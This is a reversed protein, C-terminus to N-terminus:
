STKEVEVGLLAAREAKAARRTLFLLLAAWVGLDLAAAFPKVLGAGARGAFRQIAGGGPVGSLADGGPEAGDDALTTTDYYATGTGGAGPDPEAAAGGSRGRGSSSAAAASPGAVTLLGDTAVPTSSALKRVSEVEYAFSGGSAPISSDVFTLTAAATDAIPAFSGGAGDKRSVRYGVFDPPPHSGGSYEKPAAWSVTVTHNGNDTATISAPPAPPVAVRVGVVSMSKRLPPPVDGTQDEVNATATADYVGNCTFPVHFSFQVESSSAPAETTPTSPTSTSPDVTTSPAPPPATTTTTATDYTATQDAPAPRCDPSPTDSTSYEVHLVVSSIPAPPTHRFVGSFEGDSLTSYSSPATFTSGEWPDATTRETAAHSRPSAVTGLVALVAVTLAAVALVNVSRIRSRRHVRKM